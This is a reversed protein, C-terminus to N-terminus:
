DEEKQLGRTQIYLGDEFKRRDLAKPRCSQHIRACCTGISENDIGTVIIEKAANEPDCEIKVGAPALIKRDEKSGLYNSVTISLGDKSSQPKMPHRKHGYKMVYRYGKTVGVMMNDVLSTLTKVTARQKRNKFWVSVVFQNKQNKAVRKRLLCPLNGFGKKITGLPGKVSVMKNKIDVTVGEPIDIAEETLVGKGMKSKKLKRKSKGM